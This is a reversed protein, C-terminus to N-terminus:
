ANLNTHAGNSSWQRIGPKARSPWRRPQSSNACSPTTTPNSAIANSVGACSAGNTAAVSTTANKPAVWSM